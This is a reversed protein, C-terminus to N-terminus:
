YEAMSSFGYVGGKYVRASVGSVDTRSNSILNGNLLAASRSRSVQGRLETHLGKEFGGTCSRLEDKLM